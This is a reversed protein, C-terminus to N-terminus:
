ALKAKKTQRKLKKWESHEIWGGHKKVYKMILLKYSYRKEFLKQKLKFEPTMVGKVDVIEIDGDLLVIKFDAIYEIAKYKKGNKEFAEQLMFKPQLEFSQILGQQQLKQLHIFYDAEVKSDFVTGNVVTKKAGYKSM